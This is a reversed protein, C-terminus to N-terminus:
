DVHNKRIPSQSIFNNDYNKQTSRCNGAGRRPTLSLQYKAQSEFDVKTITKKELKEKRRATSPRRQQAPVKWRNCRAPAGRRQPVLAEWRLPKEQQLVWAKPHEPKLPQRTHAWYSHSGCGLACAGYNHCVPETARCNTPDERVLFWVQIEQIPLLIRYWQAM